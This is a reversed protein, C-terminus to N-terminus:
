LRGLQHILPFIIHRKSIYPIILMSILNPYLWEINRTYLPLLPGARQRLIPSAYSLFLGKNAVSFRM